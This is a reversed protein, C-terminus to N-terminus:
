SSCCAGSQPIRATPPLMRDGDLEDSSSWWTTWAWTGAGGLHEKLENVVRAFVLDQALPDVGAVNIVHVSRSRLTM